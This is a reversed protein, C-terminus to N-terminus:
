SRSLVGSTPRQNGGSAAFALGGGKLTFTVEGNTECFSAGGTGDLHTVIADGSLSAPWYRGKCVHGSGWSGTAYTAGAKIVIRVPGTTGTGSTLGTGTWTGAFRAPFTSAGSGKATPTGPASPTGPSAAPVPAGPTGPASSAPTPSAPAAKPHDGSGGCATLGAGLLPLLVLATITPPRINM